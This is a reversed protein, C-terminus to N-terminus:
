PTHPIFSYSGHNYVLCLQPGVKYMNKAKKKKINHNHPIDLKNLSTNKEQMYEGLNTTAPERFINDRKKHSFPSHGWVLNHGPSIQQSIFWLVTLLEIYWLGYNDM